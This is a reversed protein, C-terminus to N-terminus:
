ISISRCKCLYRCIYIYIYIYISVINICITSCYLVLSLCISSITPTLSRSAEPAEEGKTGWCEPYVYM